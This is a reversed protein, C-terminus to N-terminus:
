TFRRARILLVIGTLVLAVGSILMPVFLKDWGAPWRILGWWSNASVQRCITLIPCPKAAETAAGVPEFLVVLAGLVALTAGIVRRGM